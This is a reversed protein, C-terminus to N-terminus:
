RQNYSRIKKKKGYFFKPWQSWLHIDPHQHNHQFQYHIAKKKKKKKCQLGSMIKCKCAPSMFCPLLKIMGACIHTGQPWSRSKCIKQFVLSNFEPKIAHLGVVKSTQRWIWCHFKSGRGRLRFAATFRFLCYLMISTNQPVYSGILM